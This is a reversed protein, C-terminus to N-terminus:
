RRQQFTTGTQLHSSVGGSMGFRAVGPFPVGQMQIWQEQQGATLVSSIMRQEQQQRLALAQQLRAAGDGRAHTPAKGSPRAFLLEERRRELEQRMSALRAQQTVTLGLARIIEPRFLADAGQAQLCIEELRRRQAPELESLIREDGRAVAERTTDRREHLHESEARKVDTDHTRLETALDGEVRELEAMIAAIQRIQPETLRLAAQVGPYSIVRPVGSPGGGSAYEMPAMVEQWTHSDFARGAVGAGGSASGGGGVGSRDGPPPSWAPSRQADGTAAPRQGGASPRPQMRDTSAQGGSMTGGQGAFHFSGRGPVQGPAMRALFAVEDTAAQQRLVELERRQGPTLLSLIGATADALQRNARQVLDQQRQRQLRAREAREQRIRVSDDVLGQELRAVSRRIELIRQQQAATLQLEDQVALDGIVRYVSGRGGGRSYSGTVSRSEVVLPPQGPPSARPQATADSILGVAMGALFTAAQLHVRFTKM